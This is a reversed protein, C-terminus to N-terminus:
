PSEFLGCAELATEILASVSLGQAVAHARVADAKVQPVYVGLTTKRAHHPAIRVEFAGYPTPEPFPRMELLGQDAAQQLQEPTIGHIAKEPLWWSRLHQHLLPLLQTDM